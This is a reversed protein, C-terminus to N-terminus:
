AAELDINKFVLIALLVGFCAPDIDASGNNYHRILKPESMNYYWGELDARRFSPLSLALDIEKRSDPFREKLSEYLEADMQPLAEKQERFYILFLFAGFVNLLILVAAWIAKDERSEFDESKMRMLTFFQSVWFILLLLSVILLPIIVEM